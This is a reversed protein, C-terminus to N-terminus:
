GRRLWCAAAAARECTDDAVASPYELLVLPEFVRSSIYPGTTFDVCPLLKCFCGICDKWGVCHRVVMGVVSSACVCGPHAVLQVFVVVLSHVVRVM